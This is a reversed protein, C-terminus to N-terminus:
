TVPELVVLPIERQTRRQYDAYPPYLAVIKPFLREREAPSAVHARVSRGEARVQVEAVPHVKLNSLWSPARDSGGNSAVVVLAEGDKLFLLPTNREQGTKSGTTTLILVPAGKFSGALRGGSARYVFVHLKTAVKLLSAM